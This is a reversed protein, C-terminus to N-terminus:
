RPQRIPLLTIPRRRLAMPCHSKLTHTLHEIRHRHENGFSAAFVRIMVALEGIVFVLENM